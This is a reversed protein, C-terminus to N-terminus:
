HSGIILMHTIKVSYRDGDLYLLHNRQFVYSDVSHEDRGILRVGENVVKEAKKKKEEEKQKKPCSSPGM